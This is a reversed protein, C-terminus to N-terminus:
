IVHVLCLYCFTCYWFGNKTMLYVECLEGVTNHYVTTCFTLGSFKFGISLQIHSWPQPNSEMHIYCGPGSKTSFMCVPLISKLVFYIYIFLFCSYLFSWSRPCWCLTCHRFVMFHHSLFIICIQMNPLNGHYFTICIEMQEPLM